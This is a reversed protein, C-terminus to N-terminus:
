PDAGAPRPRRDPRGPRRSGLRGPDHRGPRWGALGALAAAAQAEAGPAVVVLVEEAGAALVAEVSWRLIPKGGLLRWQKAGARDQGARSGTGAAVVVSAFTM